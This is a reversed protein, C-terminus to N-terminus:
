NSGSNASPNTSGQRDLRRRKAPSESKGGGPSGVPLIMRNNFVPVLKAVQKEQLLKRKTPTNENKGRGVNGVFDNNSLNSNSILHKKLRSTSTSPSFLAAANKKSVVKSFNFKNFKSEKKIEGGKKNLGVCLM